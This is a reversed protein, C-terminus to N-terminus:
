FTTVLRDWQSMLYGGSSHRVFCGLFTICDIEVVFVFASFFSLCFVKLLPSFIQLSCQLFEYFFSFFMSVSISVPLHYSLLVFCDFLHVFICDYLCVSLYLVNPTHVHCTVSAHTSQVCFGNIFNKIYFRCLWIFPSIFACIKSSYNESIVILIHMLYIDLPRM